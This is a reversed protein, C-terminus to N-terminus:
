LDLAATASSEVLDIVELPAIAFAQRHCEQMEKGAAVELQLLLVGLNKSNQADSNM